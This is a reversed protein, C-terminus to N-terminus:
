PANTCPGFICHVLQSTPKQLGNGQSHCTTDKRYFACGKACLSSCEESGKHATNPGDIRQAMCEELKGIQAVTELVQSSGKGFDIFTNCIWLLTIMLYHTTRQCSPQRIWRQWRGRRWWWCPWAKADHAILLSEHVPRSQITLAHWTRAPQETGTAGQGKSQMSRLATTPPLEGACAVPSGVCASLATAAELASVPRSARSAFKPESTTEALILVNLACRWCISASLLARARASVFACRWRQFRLSFKLM